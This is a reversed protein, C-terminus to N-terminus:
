PSRGHVSIELTSRQDMGRQCVRDPQPDDVLQRQRIPRRGLEPLVEAHSRVQQGV